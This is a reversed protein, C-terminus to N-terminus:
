QNDEFWEKPFGEKQKQAEWERLEKIYMLRDIM